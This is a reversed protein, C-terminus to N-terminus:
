EKSRPKLVPWSLCLDLANWLLKLVQPCLPVLPLVADGMGPSTFSRYLVLAKPSLHIPLGVLNTM